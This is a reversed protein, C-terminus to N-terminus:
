ICWVVVGVGQRMERSWIHLHDAVRGRPMEGIGCWWLKFHMRSYVLAVTVFAGCLRLPAKYTGRKMMALPSILRLAIGRGQVM